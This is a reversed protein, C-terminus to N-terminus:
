KVEIKKDPTEVEVKSPSDSEKERVRVKETDKPIAILQAIQQSGDSAKETTFCVTDGSKVTKPLLPEEQKNVRTDVTLAYQKGDITVSNDTKTTVTGHNGQCIKEHTKRNLESVKDSAKGKLDKDHEDARAATPVLLAAATVWVALVKTNMAAVVARSTGAAPYSGTIPSQTQPPAATSASQL